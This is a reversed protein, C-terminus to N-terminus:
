RREDGGKWGPPPSPPKINLRKMAAKVAEDMKEHGEQMMAQFDDNTQLDNAEISANLVEVEVGTKEFLYDADKAQCIVQKEMRSRYEKESKPPEMSKAIQEAKYDVGDMM